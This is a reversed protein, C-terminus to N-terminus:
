ELRELGVLDLIYTVVLDLLFGQAVILLLSASAYLALNDSFLRFLPDGLFRLAVLFYAVVLIGYLVLEIMFNRILRRWAIPRKGGEDSQPGHPAAPM